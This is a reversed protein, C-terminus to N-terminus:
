KACLHAPEIARQSLRRLPAEGMGTTCRARQRGPRPREDVHPKCVTHSGKQFRLEQAGKLAYQELIPKVLKSVLTKIFDADVETLEAADIAVFLDDM